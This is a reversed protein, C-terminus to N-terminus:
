FTVQLNGWCVSSWSVDNAPPSTYVPFVAMRVDVLDPVTSGGPLSALDVLGDFTARNFLSQPPSAGHVSFAYSLSVDLWAGGSRRMQLMGVVAANGTSGRGLNVQFSSLLAAHTSGLPVPIEKAHIYEYPAAMTPQPSMPIFSQCAPYGAGHWFYRQGAPPAVVVPTPNAAQPAVRQSAGYILNCRAGDCQIEPLQDSSGINARQALVPASAGFVMLALSSRLLIRSLNMKCGGYILGLRYLAQLM